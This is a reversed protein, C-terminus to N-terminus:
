RILNELRVPLHESIWQRYRGDYGVKNQLEQIKQKLVFVKKESAHPIEQLREVLHDVREETSLEDDRIWDKYEDEAINLHHEMVTQAVIRSHLLSERINGRGTVVNGLAFVSHYGRIKGSDLDEIQLINGELPLEKLKEPVSGISSVILSTSVPMLKDPVTVWKGRIYKNKQFILGTLRNKDTLYDVPILCDKVTFLYKQRYNQLIRKRLEYVKMRRSDDAEPPMSALPMDIIRRRYYLTCGKLGLKKLSLGYKKFILPLGERELSFLDIELNQKRMQRLVAELMLIKVVDLSALGGGIVIANDSLEYNYGTYGPEHNHNYWSVLSNQYYLGKGVYKDIGALPLQKDQLAGIALLIASFGWELLQNLSIDSGLKIKPVFSINPHDIKLDIKEEEQNRLKVHWKPLGEEIKGYPLANKEFVVASVGRQSLQYAAESGSVGGGIIAV